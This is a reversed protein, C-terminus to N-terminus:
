DNAKKVHHPMGIPILEEPMAIAKHAWMSVEELREMVINKERGDPLANNLLGAFLVFDQRLTQHKESASIGPRHQGFRACLESHPLM